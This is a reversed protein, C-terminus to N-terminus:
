FDDPLDGALHDPARMRWADTVLERLREVDPDNEGLEFRHQVGALVVVLSSFPHMVASDGWDFIRYGGDAHVLVSGDAKLMLVRTAMPLHATLRGAYDVQCTAVVLRM